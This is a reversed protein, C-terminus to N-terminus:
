LNQFFLPTVVLPSLLCWGIKNRKELLLVLSKSMVMTGTTCNYMLMGKDFEGGGGGGSVGVVSLRSHRM